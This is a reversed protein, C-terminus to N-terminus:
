SNFTISLIITAIGMDENWKNVIYPVGDLMLTSGYGKPMPLDESKAFIMKEANSIVSESGGQKESLGEDDVVCVVTKGDIDHEEGFEDLNLFVNELDSNVMDKFMPM